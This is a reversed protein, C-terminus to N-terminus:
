GRRRGAGARRGAATVARRTGALARAGTAAPRRRARGAVVREADTAAPSTRPGIRRRHRRPGVRCRHTAWPRVRGLHRGLTRAARSTAWTIPTATRTTGTTATAAETAATGTTASAAVAV